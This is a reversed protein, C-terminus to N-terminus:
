GLLGRLRRGRWRMPAWEPSWGRHCGGGEERIGEGGGEERLGVGEVVEVVAGLVVGEEEV